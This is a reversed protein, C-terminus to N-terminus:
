YYIYSDLLEKAEKTKESALDYRTVAVFKRIEEKSTKITQKYFIADNFNRAIIGDLREIEKVDKANGHLLTKALAVASTKCFTNAIQKNETTDYVLFLGKKNERVVFKGIRISNGKVYPFYSTDLQKNILDELESGLKNKTFTTM